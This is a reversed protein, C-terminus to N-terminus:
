FYTAGIKTGTYEGVVEKMNLGESDTLATGIEKCYIDQNADLCVVLRDGDERWQKLQQILDERFRTRPCTSDKEKTIYYRRAQQYSTRSHKKKNYCPNYGCVMRTVIGNSGRFVMVVWRGLGSDDRGSAEFDYQEILQGYLVM